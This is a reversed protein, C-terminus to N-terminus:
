ADTGQTHLQGAEEGPARWCRSPRARKKGEEVLRELEDGDVGLKGALVGIAAGLDQLEALLRGEAAEVAECVDARTANGHAGQRYHGYPQKM